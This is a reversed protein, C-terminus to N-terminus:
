PWCRPAFVVWAELWAARTERRPEGECFGKEPIPQKSLQMSEEGRRTHMGLMLMAGGDQSAQGIVLEAAVVQATAFPVSVSM